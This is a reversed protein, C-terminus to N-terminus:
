GGGVLVPRAQRVPLVVAPSTTTTTGGIAAFPGGGVSFEATWTLTVRVAAPAVARYVHTARQGGGVTQVAGDGFEWGYSVIRPRIRVPQGLLVVTQEGQGLLACTRGAVDGCWFYTELNVLTWNRPDTRIGGRYLPLERFARLVQDPTVVAAPAPPAAVGCIAGVEGPVARGAAAAEARADLCAALAPDITRSSRHTAPRGPRGSQGAAGKHRKDARVIVTGDRDGFCTSVTSSIDCESGKAPASSAASVSATLTLTLVVLGLVCVTGVVQGAARQCDVM